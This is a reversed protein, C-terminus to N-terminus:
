RGPRKKLPKKKRLLDELEEQSGCTKAVRNIGTQSIVDRVLPKPNLIFFALKQKKCLKILNVIVGLAPSYVYDVKSLDLVIPRKENNGINNNISQSLMNAGTMDLEGGPVFWLANDKEFTQIDTEMAM